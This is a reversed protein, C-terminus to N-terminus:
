PSLSVPEAAAPVLGNTVFLDHMEKTQLYDLFKRVHGTARQSVVAVIPRALPYTDAKLADFTPSVAVGSGDDLALAYVGAGKLLTTPAVSLSGGNFEVSDRADEGTRVREFQEGLAAKRSDGYLWTVFPEWIGVGQEPNYFKIERDEGGLEQWNKIRREYIGTMQDKTIKRVGANWVDAPVIIALAQYAVTEEMFRKKPDASREQPTVPRISIAVDVLDAAVSAIAAGSGGESVMRLEINNEKLKPAAAALAKAAVATTHVRVDEAKAIGAILIGSLIVAIARYPVEIV